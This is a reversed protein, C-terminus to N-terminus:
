RVADAAAGARRDADDLWQLVGVPSGRQFLANLGLVLLFMALAPSLQWPFDSLARVSTGEQLMAGWSAVSDPFGLGVYSLTAEAVIFAPTLLTLQTLVFGTAAPLLHLALLRVHSAGLSTAAAAYDLRREAAVIARVGRAVVPAGLVAFISVLLGFVAGSPLVLPLVSRLALPLYMAPLVLIIESGRMLVEDVRGGCYGAVGGAIVGLLAALVAAMASVALSVRAGHLLRALVDRGFSDTGLLLLPVDAEDSSEVFHGGSLWRLATPRSLDPEYRQELQNVLVWPYIFPRRIRGTADLLHVRTPPANLLRPFATDARHPAVIPAAVAALVITVVLWAALNLRRWRFSAAM